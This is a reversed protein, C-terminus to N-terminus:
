IKTAIIIGSAWSMKSIRLDTRQELISILRDVKDAHGEPWNPQPLMDDIFYIGGPKLLDLAEDLLQYKGSWADAFILDFKQGNLSRLLDDGDGCVVTLRPDKGLHRDLIELFSAELYVRGRDLNSCNVVRNRHRLQGCSHAPLHSLHCILASLEVIM